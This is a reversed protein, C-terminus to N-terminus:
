TEPLICVCVCCIIIFYYTRYTRIRVIRVIRVSVYSVYPYSRYTRYTRIRVICVSVYSVYLYTCIRVSVYPYTRIRVIRVIRVNKYKTSKQFQKQYRKKGTCDPTHGVFPLTSDCNGKGEEGYEGSLMLSWKRHPFIERTSTRRFVAFLFGKTSQKSLFWSKM